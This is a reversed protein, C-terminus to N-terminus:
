RKREKLAKELIKRLRRTFLKSFIGSGSVAQLENETLDRMGQNAEDNM